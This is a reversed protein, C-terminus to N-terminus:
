DSEPPRHLRGSAPRHLPARAHHHSRVPAQRHPDSVSARALLQRKDTRTRSSPMGRPPRTRAHPNLPGYTRLLVTVPPAERALRGGGPHDAFHTVRGAPTRSSGFEIAPPGHSSQKRCRLSRHVGPPVSDRRWPSPGHRRYPPIKPGRFDYSGVDGRCSKQRLRSPSSTRKSKPLQEISSTRDGKRERVCVGASRYRPRSTARVKATLPRSYIEPDSFTEEIEM